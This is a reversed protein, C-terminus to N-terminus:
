ETYKAAVAAPALLDCTFLSTAFPVLMILMGSFTCSGEFGYM